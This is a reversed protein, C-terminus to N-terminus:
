PPMKTPNEKKANVSKVAFAKTGSIETPAADWVADCVTPGYVIDIAFSETAVILIVGVSEWVM